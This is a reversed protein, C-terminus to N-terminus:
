FFLTVDGSEITNLESAEVDFGGIKGAAEKHSTITFQTVLDRLRGNQIAWTELGNRAFIEDREKRNEAVAQQFEASIGAIATLITKLSSIHGDVEVCMAQFSDPYVRLSSVSRALEAQYEQMKRFFTMKELKIRELTRNDIEAEASFGKTLEDIGKIFEELEKRTDQVRKDAQVILESMYNVTDQVSSIASNKAVEIQQTIRVHQLRSIIPRINDFIVRLHKVESVITSSDAVMTKQGRQYVGIHAIYDSFGATMVELLIPISTARSKKDLYKAIFALRSEEVSDLIEHVRGWNNSFSEISREINASIDTSIKVCIELLEIDFTLQDLREEDSRSESIGSLDNLALQIQDISQRIIDQLQIGSMAERIPSTVLAASESMRDLSSEAERLIPVIDIGDSGAGMVSVESQAGLLSTFSDKLSANKEVLRREEVLLDNSLAIMRASLRKLNETICSFARGKEGSKISIVMANLSIIELEESDSRIAFVRDNIRDLASMRENLREFLASNRANYESFFGVEESGNTGFGVSLSTFLEKLAPLSSTGSSGTISLLAPFCAGLRTYLQETGASCKQMDEQFRTINM